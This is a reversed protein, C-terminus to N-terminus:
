GATERGEDEWCLRLLRQSSARPVHAGHVGGSAALLQAARQLDCANCDQLAGPLVSSVPTMHGFGDRVETNKFAGENMSKRLWRLWPKDKQSNNTFVCSCGCMDWSDRLLLRECKHPVSCHYCNFYSFNTPEKQTQSPRNYHLFAHIVIEQELLFAKSVYGPSGWFGRPEIM